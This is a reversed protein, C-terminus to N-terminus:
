VTHAAGPKAFHQSLLDFAGQCQICRTASPIAKRRAAAILDGCDECEDQGEGVLARRVTDIGDAIENETQAVALAHFKEDM